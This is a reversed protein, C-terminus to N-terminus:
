PINLIDNKALFNLFKQFAVEQKLFGEGLAYNGGMKKVFKSLLEKKIEGLAKILLPIWLIIFYFVTHLNFFDM